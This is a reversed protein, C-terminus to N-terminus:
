RQEYVCMRVSLQLENILNSDVKDPLNATKYLEEIRVFSNEAWRILAELDKEGRRVKLLDEADERRVIVGKGEAIEEAMSLLRVCHMMNKGDIKQGHKSSDVWRAENRNELWTQYKNYDKCHQSYGDKNYYIIGLCKQNKPISSLRIDNSDEFSVGKYGNVSLKCVKILFKYLIQKWNSSFESWRNHANYDYFAAYTDRFNPIKSLGIFIQDLNNKKLYEKITLSHESKTNIYCFDLPTKREVKDMEWNMMKDQGKAKKIQAIGYGLFSDRCVKTLFLDKKELVLNFAHHKYLICDDPTNLLELMGPNNSCVLELFRRLEYFVTDNKDDNIQEKYKSSLIDEKSQLYVGAYDTDSTPTQTGYAQSGRIVIYLPIATPLKSKIFDIQEQM